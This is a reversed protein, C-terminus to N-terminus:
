LYDVFHRRFKLHLNSGIIFILISLVWFYISYEWHTIFYWESGFFAARYGELLYFLPNLKVIDGFPAGLKGIDWLVPSLYIFMRLVANLLMHVDRVITSLTSTILSLGLILFITAPIFYLLQIYYINAFYGGIHFIIVFILIMVIHIYLQSFIVFSPVISMPFNMKALIRIRSYISSSSNLTSKFFFVWLIFGALLWFIYPIKEGNALTVDSREMVNSFVFWYIAVQIVLNIVEWSSGLFNNRNESKIEFASLRRILYFYQFQEKLIKFMSKM